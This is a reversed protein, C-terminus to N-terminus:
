STDVTFAGHSHERADDSPEGAKALTVLDNNIATVTGLYAHFPAPRTAFNKATVHGKTTTGTLAIGDGPHTRALRRALARGASTHRSPLAVTLTRNKTRHKGSKASSALLTVTSSTHRLVLGHATFAKHVPKHHHAAQAAGPLALVLTAAGAAAIALRGTRSPFPM